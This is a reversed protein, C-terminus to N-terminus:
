TDAMVRLDPSSPVPKSALPDQSGHRSLTWPLHTALERRSISALLYPRLHGFGATKGSGPGSRPGPGLDPVLDSPDSGPGPRTGSFPDSFDFFGGSDPGPRTGSFYLKQM